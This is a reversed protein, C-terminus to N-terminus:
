ANPWGTLCAEASTCSNFPARAVEYFLFDLFPCSVSPLFSFFVLLHQCVKDDSPKEEKSDAVNVDEDYVRQV